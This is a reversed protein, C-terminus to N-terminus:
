YHPPPTEESQSAIQSPQIQQIKNSLLKLQRTLKDIQWQQNTIADNLQAITDEQFTLQSELQEIHEQLESTMLNNMIYLGTNLWAVLAPM